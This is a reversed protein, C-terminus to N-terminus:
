RPSDTPYSVPGGIPQFYIIGFISRPPWRGCVIERCLQLSTPATFLSHFLRPLRPTWKYKMGLCTLLLHERSQIGRHAMVVVCLTWALTISDAIKEQLISKIEVPYFPRCNSSSSACKSECVRFEMPRLHSTEMSICLIVFLFSVILYM